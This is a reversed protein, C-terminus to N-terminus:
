FYVCNQIRTEGATYLYQFYNSKVTVHTLQCARNRNVPQLTHYFTCWREWFCRKLRTVVPRCCSNQLSHTGCSNQTEPHIRYAFAQQHYDFTTDRSWPPIGGHQPIGSGSHRWTASTTGPRSLRIRLPPHLLLRVVQIGHHSFTCQSEYSYLLGYSDMVEVRQLITNILLYGTIVNKRWYRVEETLSTSWKLSLNIVKVNTTAQNKQRWDYAILLVCIVLWM